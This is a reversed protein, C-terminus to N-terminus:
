RVEQEFGVVSLSSGKLIWSRDGSDVVKCNDPSRKGTGQNGLENGLVTGATNNKKVYFGSRTPEIIKKIKSVREVKCLVFAKKKKVRKVKGEDVLSIFPNEEKKKNRKTLNESTFFISRKKIEYIILYKEGNPYRKEGISKTEVSPQNKVRVEANFFRPNSISGKLQKVRYVGDKGKLSKKLIDLDRRNHDEYEDAVEIEDRTHTQTGYSESIEEDSITSVDPSNPSDDENLKLPNPYRGVSKSRQKDRKRFM